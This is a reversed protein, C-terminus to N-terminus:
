PRNEAPDADSERTKNEVFDLITGLMSEFEDGLADYVSQEGGYPDAIDKGCVDCLAYAKARAYRACIYDKQEKTMTFVFDSTEALNEDFVKSVGDSANIGRSKLVNVTKPNVPSGGGTVGASDTECAFGVKRAYDAFMAALMPSRCTNGTCVFTIKM